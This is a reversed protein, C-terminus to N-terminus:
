AVMTLETILVLMYLLQSMQRCYVMKVQVYSPIAEVWEMQVDLCPVSNQMLLKKARPTIYSLYFYQLMIGLLGVSAEQSHAQVSIPVKPNKKDM